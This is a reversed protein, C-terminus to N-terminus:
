DGAPVAGGGGRPHLVVRRDDGGDRVRRFLCDVHRRDAARPLLHLAARQLLIGGRYRADANPVIRAALGAGVGLDRAHLLRLGRRPGAAPLPGLQSGVSLRDPNARPVDCVVADRDAQPRHRRGSLRPQRVRVYRMRRHDPRGLRGVGTGVAPRPPSQASMPRSSPLHRTPESLLLQSMGGRSAINESFGFSHSGVNPAASSGATM